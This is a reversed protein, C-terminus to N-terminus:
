RRGGPGLARAYFPGSAHSVRDFRRRASPCSAPLPHAREASLAAGASRYAGGQADAFQPWRGRGRAAGFMRRGGFRAALGFRRALRPARGNGGEAPSEAPGRAGRRPTRRARQNEINWGFAELGIEEGPVRRPPARVTFRHRRHDAFAEAPRRPAPSRRATWLKGHPRALSRFARRHARSGPARAPRGISGGFGAEAFALAAALGNLGAGVVAVDHLSRQPNQDEGM